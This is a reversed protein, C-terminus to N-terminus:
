KKGEPKQRKGLAFRQALDESIPKASLSGHKAAYSVSNYYARAAAFAESGAMTITDLLDSHLNAVVDLLPKLDNYAKLDKIMEPVNLYPPVYEPNSVSYDCAKKVFALSGDHMKSMSSKEEDTLAILYPSVTGTTAKMSEVLKDVFGPALDISVVNKQFM